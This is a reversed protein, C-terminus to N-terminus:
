QFTAKAVWKYKVPKPESDGWISRIEFSPTLSKISGWKLVNIGDKWASFLFRMTKSRLRKVFSKVLFELFDNSHNTKGIHNQDEEKLFNELFPPLNRKKLTSPGESWPVPPPRRSPPCRVLPPPPPPLEGLAILELLDYRSSRNM